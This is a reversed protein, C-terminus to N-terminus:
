LGSEPRTAPMGAQFLQKAIYIQDICWKSISIPLTSLDHCQMAQMIHEETIGYSQAEEFTINVIGTRIDELFDRVNFSMRVADSCATCQEITAPPMM